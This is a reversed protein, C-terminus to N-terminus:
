TSLPCVVTLLIHHRSSPLNEFCTPSFPVGWLCSVRRWGDGGMWIEGSPYFNELNPSSSSLELPGHWTLSTPACFAHSGCLHRMHSSRLFPLVALSEMDHGLAAQTHLLEPRLCSGTQSEMNHGLTAQTHLLEPSPKFMLQGTTFIFTYIDQDCM